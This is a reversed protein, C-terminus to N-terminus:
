NVINNFFKFLQNYGIITTGDIILLRRTLTLKIIDPINVSMRASKGSRSM